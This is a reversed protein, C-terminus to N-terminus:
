TEDECMVAAGVEAGGLVDSIGGGWSDCGCVVFTPTM